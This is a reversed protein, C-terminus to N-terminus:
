IEHAHSVLAISLPEKSLDEIIFDPPTIKAVVPEFIELDNKPVFTEAGSLVFVKENEIPIRGFAKMATMAEDYTIGAAACAKIVKNLENMLDDVSM